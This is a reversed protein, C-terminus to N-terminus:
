SWFMHQPYKFSGNLHSLEEPSGFCMIYQYISRTDFNLACVNAKIDPSLHLSIVYVVLYYFPKVFISKLRLMHVTRSSIRHMYYSYIYNINIALKIATM